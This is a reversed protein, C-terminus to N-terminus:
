SLDSLQSRGVEARFEADAGLRALVVRLVERMPELDHLLVLFGDERRGGLSRFGDAVQHGELGLLHGM